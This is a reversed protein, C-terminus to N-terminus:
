QPVKSKPTLVSPAWGGRITLEVARESTPGSALATVLKRRNLWVRAQGWVLPAVAIMGLVIKTGEDTTMDIGKTAAISILWRVAVGSFGVILPNM